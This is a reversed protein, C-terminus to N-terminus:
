AMAAVEGSLRARQSELTARGDGGVPAAALADDYIEILSEEGKRIRPILDRDMDDLWSRVRIVNEQVLSMFSGGDDPAHGRAALMAHLEEHHARHLALMREALPKLDPEAREVLEEYGQIVDLVRTHVKAAKADFAQAGSAQGSAGRSTGQDETM